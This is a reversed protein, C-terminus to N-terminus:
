KAPKIRLSDIVQKEISKVSAPDNQTTFRVDYIHDGNVVVYVIQFLQGGDVKTTLAEMRGAKGIPLDVYTITENYIDQKADAVADELSMPGDDKRRVRYNTRAEGPIPRSADNVWILIGKEELEAAEQADIATEEQAISSVQSSDGGLSGLTESMSPMVNSGPSGRKWGPAVMISCVKDSSEALQAGMPLQAPGPDKVSVVPGGKCGLSIALLISAFLIRKM